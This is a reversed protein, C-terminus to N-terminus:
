EKESSEASWNIEEMNEMKEKMEDPVSVSLTAM